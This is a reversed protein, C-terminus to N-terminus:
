GLSFSGCTNIRTQRLLKVNIPMVPLSLVCTVLCGQETAVTVFCKLKMEKNVNVSGCFTMYFLM